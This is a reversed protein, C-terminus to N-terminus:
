SRKKRERMRDVVDVHLSPAGGMKGEGMYVTRHPFPIEINRADFAKKLRRNFERTMRFQEGPKVKIRARIILASDAFEKLGQIEIPELVFDGLKEDGRLDEGVLRIVEAVEDVDERYAVGVDLLCYSYFKTMNTVIDIKSNPIYHVNGNWDRLVTHRFTVREVIGQKGAAEVFDGVRIEDDLIIFFGNTVDQVLHQAGFGIAIGAIGAAALLAGIQINFQDMLLLVALVLIAIRLVNYFMSGLTKARKQIERDDQRTIYMTVLRNSIARALVLLLFTIIAVVIIGPGHSVLWGLISKWITQINM